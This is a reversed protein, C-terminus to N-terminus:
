KRKKGENRKGSLDSYRGPCATRTGYRLCRSLSRRWPGGAATDTCLFCGRPTSTHAVRRGECWRVPHSSIVDRSPGECGGGWGKCDTTSPSDVRHQYSTDTTWTNFQSLFTVRSCSPPALPPWINLFLKLKLSANTLWIDVTIFCFSSLKYM